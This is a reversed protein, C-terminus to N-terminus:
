LADLCNWCGRRLQKRERKRYGYGSVTWMWLLLECPEKKGVGDRLYLNFKRQENKLAKNGSFTDCYKDWLKAITWKGAEAEKAAKEAARREANSPEKGAMRLARRNSARAPTMDESARGIKEDILKGKKRYTIYFIKEPKHSVRHTGWIFYVGAYDTKHRKQAPM